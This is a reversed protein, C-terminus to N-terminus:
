GLFLDRQSDNRVYSLIISNNHMDIILVYRSISSTNLGAIIAM